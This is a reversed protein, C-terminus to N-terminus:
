SKGAESEVARRPTFPHSTEVFPLEHLERIHDCVACRETAPGQLLLATLASEVRRIEKSGTASPWISAANGLVNACEHLLERPVSVTRDKRSM